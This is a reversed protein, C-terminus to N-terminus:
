QAGSSEKRPTLHPSSTEALGQETRRYREGWRGGTVRHGSKGGHVRLLVPPYDEEDSRLPHKLPRALALGEVIRRNSNGLRAIQCPTPTESVVVATPDAGPRGKPQGQRGFHPSLTSGGGSSPM